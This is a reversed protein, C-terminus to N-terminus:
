RQQALAEKLKKLQGIELGTAQSIDTLAVGMKLMNIAVKEIGKEIGQKIGIGIGKEVGEKNAHKLGSHYDRLEKERMEYEYALAPDSMYRKEAELVEQLVADHMAIAEMEEDSLRNSFYALWRDLRRLEKTSEMTWKPIELFHMEFQDSFKHNNKSNYIGFMSHFEEYPFLKFNLINISITRTLFDYDSGSFFDKCYLRSWYYLARSPFNGTSAAQIEINIKTGDSATGRIDLISLKGNNYQPDLQREDFVIDQILETGEFELVANIFALTREKHQANGFLAKFLRDNTRNIKPM